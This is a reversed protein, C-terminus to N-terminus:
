KNMERELEQVTVADVFWERRKVIEIAREFAARREARLAVAIADYIGNWTYICDPGNSHTRRRIATVTEEPTPHPQPATM